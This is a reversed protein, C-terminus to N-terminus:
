GVSSREAKKNLYDAVEELDFQGDIVVDKLGFAKSVWPNVTDGTEPHVLALYVDEATIEAM